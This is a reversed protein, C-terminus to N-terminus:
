KEIGAQDTEFFAQIKILKMHTESSTLRDIMCANHAM